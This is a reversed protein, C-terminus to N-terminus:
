RLRLSLLMWRRDLLLLQRGHLKLTITAMRSSSQPAITPRRTRVEYKPVGDLSWKLAITPTWLPQPPAIAPTRLSQLAITPTMALVEFKPVELLLQPANAPQRGRCNLLLPQRGRRFRLNLTM